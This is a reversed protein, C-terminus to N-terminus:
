ASTLIDKSIITKAGVKKQNKYDYRKFEVKSENVEVFTEKRAKMKKALLVAELYYADIETLSKRFQNLFRETKCNTLTEMDSLELPFYVEAGDVKLRGFIPYLSEGYDLGGAIIHNVYLYNGNVSFVVDIEQIGNRKKKM